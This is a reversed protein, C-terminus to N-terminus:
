HHLHLRLVHPLLIHIKVLLRLLLSEVVRLHLLPLHVVARVPPVVWRILLEPALVIHQIIPEHARWLLIRHIASVVGFHQVTIFLLLVRVPCLVVLPAVHVILVEPAVVRVRVHSVLILSQHELRHVKLRWRKNRVFIRRLQLRLILELM